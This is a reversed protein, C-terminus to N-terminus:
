SKGNEMKEVEELLEESTLTYNNEEWINEAQSLLVGIRKSPPIGIGVIDDGTLPFIPIDWREPLSYIRRYIKTLENNHSNKNAELAWMLIVLERFGERGAKRLIKKQEKEDSTSSFIFPPNVLFNLKDRNANSVQWREAIKGAIELRKGANEREIDHIIAALRLVPEPAELNLLECDTEILDKFITLGSSPKNGVLVEALVGSSLMEIMVYYLLSSEGLKVKLLKLMEAQIREGSLMAIKAAYKKCAALASDEMISRGYHAQFRFFRLIRLYDEQVRQEADGVFRVVGEEMDELGTFYDYIRGEVDMSLANITFDRRSADERWDHTFAVEAHRGDCNVDRRLTTIEFTKKEVVATITGHKIGTPVVRIGRKELMKTAIEPAHTTGIDIDKVPRHLMMDRVCGGVFRALDKEGGLANMVNITEPMVM